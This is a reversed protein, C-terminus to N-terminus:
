KLRVPHDYVGARTLLKVMAAPSLLGPEFQPFDEGWNAYQLASTVFEVCFLKSRDAACPKWLNRTLRLGALVLRRDEEYPRGLGSLLSFALRSAQTANLKREPKARMLWVRGDYVAIRQLPGHAQTGEICKGTVDCPEHSLTTSEFLLDRKVWDAIAKTGVNLSGFRRAVCLSEFSVRAIIGVHSYPSCTGLRIIRSVASRGSFLVIDGTQWVIDSLQMAM